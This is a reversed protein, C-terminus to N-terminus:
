YLVDICSATNPLGFSGKLVVDQNPILTGTLKKKTKGNILLSFSPTGTTGELSFLECASVGSSVTDCAINWRLVIEEKGSDAGKPNPLVSVFKM